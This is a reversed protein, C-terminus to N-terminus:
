TQTAKSRKEKLLSYRAVPNRGSTFAVYAVYRILVNSAQFPAGFCVRVRGQVQDSLLLLSKRRTKDRRKLPDDLQAQQDGHVGLREQCM